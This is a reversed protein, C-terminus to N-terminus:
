IDVGADWGTLGRSWIGPDASSDIASQFVRRRTESIKNLESFRRTGETYVAHHSIQYIANSEELIDDPWCQAIPPTNFYGSFTLCFWGVYSSQYTFGQCAASWVPIGVGPNVLLATSSDTEDVLILLSYVRVVHGWDGGQTVYESYGLSLM